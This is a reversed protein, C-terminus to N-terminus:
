LFHISTEAEFGNLICTEHAFTVSPLNLYDLRGQFLRTKLVCPNETQTAIQLSIVCMTAKIGIDAMNM